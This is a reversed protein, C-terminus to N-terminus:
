FSGTGPAALRALLSFMVLSLVAALPCSGWV